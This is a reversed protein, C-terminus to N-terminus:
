SLSAEPVVELGQIKLIRPLLTAQKHSHLMVEKCGNFMYRPVGGHQSVEDVIKCKLVLLVVHDGTNSLDMRIDKPDPRGPEETLIGCTM